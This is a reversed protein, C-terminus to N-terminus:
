KLTRLLGGIDEGNNIADILRSGIVVGDALGHLARVHEPGSIGFGVAIPLSTQARIRALFAPLTADLSGRVGTTGTRSVAYVFGRSREAIERLRTETSTPAALFILDTEHRR